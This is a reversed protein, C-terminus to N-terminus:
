DAPSASTVPVPAAPLLPACTQFAAAVTTDTRDLSRMWDEGEPITVGNDTLCSAFAALASEDITVPGGPGGQPALDACAATAADFTEQSVGDPLGGGPFGGGPFGGAAPAGSPMGSPLGRAMGSPPAGAGGAGPPQGLDPLTVGNDAMCSRYATFDPAAGAGGSLAANSPASVVAASASDASSPSGGCATLGVLALAACAGLLSRQTLTRVMM